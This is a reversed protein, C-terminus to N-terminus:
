CGGRLAPGLAAPSSVLLACAAGAEQKRGPRGSPPALAREALCGFRPCGAATAAALDARKPLLPRRPWAGGGLDTGAESTRRRSFFGAPEAALGGVPLLAQPARGRRRRWLGGGLLFRVRRRRRQDARPPLLGCSVARSGDRGRVPCSARPPPPPPPPARPPRGRRRPSPGGRLFVRAQSPKYYAQRSVPKSWQSLSSSRLLFGGSLQARPPVRLWQRPRM